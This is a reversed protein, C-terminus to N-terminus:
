RLPAPKDELKLIEAPVDLWIAATVRDRFPRADIPTGRMLSEYMRAIGFGVWDKSFLASKVTAVGTFQEARKRAFEFLHNTRVAVETLRSFDVFRKEPAAAKEIRCLWEGIEDLLEDDMVGQPQWAILNHAPYQWVHAPGPLVTPAPLPESDDAPNNPM